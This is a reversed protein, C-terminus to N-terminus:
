PKAAAAAASGMIAGVGTFVEHISQADPSSKQVKLTATLRNSETVSFDIGESAWLLRQSSISLTGDSGRTGKVFACGSLLTALLLLALLKM